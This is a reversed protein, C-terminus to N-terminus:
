KGASHASPGSAATIGRPSSAPLSSGPPAANGRLRALNEPTSVQHQAVVVGCSVIYELAEEITLKVDLVESKRFMMVYGTMPMPSTPLLVSIVPEGAASAVDLMGEGTVFGISWIGTRPYEVAVVRSFTLESKSLMFDTVQKVSSYVNRILPLRRVISEFQEWVFGGIRAAMLKGLLYAVLIVVCVFLPIVIQPKLYRSDVYVEIVKPASKPVEEGALYTKVQQYIEEPVYDGDVVRHHPVGEVEIRDPLPGPREVTHIEDQYERVIVRRIGAEVYTLVYSDLTGWIWVFIVITLLPPLIVAMGSLVARRFPRAGESITNESNPQANM